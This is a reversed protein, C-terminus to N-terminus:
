WSAGETRESFDLQWTHYGELIVDLYVPHPCNGQASAIVRDYASPIPSTRQLVM